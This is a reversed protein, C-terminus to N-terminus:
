AADKAAAREAKLKDRHKAKLADLGEKKGRASISKFAFPKPHALAYGYEVWRDLVASVAGTSPQYEDKTRVAIETAIRHPTLTKGSAVEFKGAEYAEVIEIVKAELAGREKRPGAETAVKPEKTSKSDKTKTAM